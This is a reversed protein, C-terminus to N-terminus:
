KNKWLICIKKQETLYDYQSKCCINFKYGKEIAKNWFVDFVNNRDYIVDWHEALWLLVAFNRCRVYNNPNSYKWFMKHYYAIKFANYNPDSIDIYKFYVNQGNAQLNYKKVLYPIIDYYTLKKNLNVSSASSIKNTDINSTEDNLLASMISAIDQKETEVNNKTNKITKSITNIKEQSSNQNVKDILTVAQEYTDFYKRKWNYWTFYVYGSGIFIEYIKWNPAIHIKSSIKPQVEKYVVEKKVVPKERYVIKEVTFAKKIEPVKKFVFVIFSLLLLWIYWIVVTSKFFKMNFKVYDLGYIVIVYFTFWALLSYFIREYPKFKELLVFVVFVLVLSLMFVVDKQNVLRNWIYIEWNLINEYLIILWVFFFIASWILNMGFKHFLIKDLIALVLILVSLVFGWKLYFLKLPALILSFDFKFNTIDKKDWFFIINKIKEYLWKLFTTVIDIKLDFFMFLIVLTNLLWIIMLSINKFSMWIIFVEIWLFFLFLKLYLKNQM